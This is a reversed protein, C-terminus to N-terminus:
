RNLFKGAMRTIDNLPSGDGDRDLMGLLGGLGGSGAGAKQSLAGAALSALMPLLQKLRDAGIGTKEAADAAVSRSVEKSGFIQGLIDNGQAVGAESAVGEAPPPRLPADTSGQAAKQRFGAAISPALTAMAQQTQEPSLGIRAGIQQIASPGGAEAILDMLSM